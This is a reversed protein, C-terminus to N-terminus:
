MTKGSQVYGVVLHTTEDNGVADHPNCHALIDSTEMRLNAAGQATIGKSKQQEVFSNFCAGQQVDANLIHGRGTCSAPEETTQIIKISEEM